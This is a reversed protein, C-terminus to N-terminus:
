FHMQFHGIGRQRTKKIFKLPGQPDHVILAFCYHSFLLSVCGEVKLLYMGEDDFTWWLGAVPNGSGILSPVGLGSVSGDSDLWNQTRRSVTSPLPPYRFRRGCRDFTINRTGQMLELNFQDSHTLIRFVDKIMTLAQSSVPIV